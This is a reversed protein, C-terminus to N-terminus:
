FFSCLLRGSTIRHLVLSDNRLFSIGIKTFGQEGLKFRHGTSFSLSHCRVSHPSLFLLHHSSSPPPPLLFSPDCAIFPPPSISFSLSNSKKHSPSSAASFVPFSSSDRKKNGKGIAIRIVPPYYRLHVAMSCTIPPLFPSGAKIKPNPNFFGREDLSFGSENEKM